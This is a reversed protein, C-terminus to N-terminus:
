ELLNLGVDVEVDDDVDVMLANKCFDTDFTFLQFEPFVKYLDSEHSIQLIKDDLLKIKLVGNFSWTDAILKNRKLSRCNYSLDRFKPCLNHSAYIITDEPLGAASSVKSLSKRKDIIQDVISRKTQIITPNHLAKLRHCAEIDNVTCDIDLASIINVVTNKLDKQHVSEPIGNFEINVKRSYQNSVNISREMNVLRNELTRIRKKLEISEVTLKNVKDGYNSSHDGIEQTIRGELATLRNSITLSFNDFLEKLAKITAM